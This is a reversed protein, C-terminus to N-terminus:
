HGPQSEEGGRLADIRWGATMTVHSYRSGFARETVAQPQALVVFMSVILHSLSVTEQNFSQDFLAVLTVGAFMAIWLHLIGIETSQRGNLIVLRQRDSRVVLPISFWAVAISILGLLGTEFFIEVFQSHASLSFPSYFTVQGPGFGIL